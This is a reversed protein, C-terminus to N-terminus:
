GGQEMEMRAEHARKNLKTAILLGRLGTLITYSDSAVWQTMLLVGTDVDVLSLPWGESHGHVVSLEEPAGSRGSHFKSQSSLQQSSVHVM